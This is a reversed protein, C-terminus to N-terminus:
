HAPPQFAVTLTPMIVVGHWADAPITSYNQNYTLPLSFTVAYSGGDPTIFPSPSYTLAPGIQLLTDRRGGVVDQYERGTATMPLTLKWDTLQVRAGPTVSVAVNANKQSAVDSLTEGFTLAFDAYFCFGDKRPDPIAARCFTGSGSLDQNQHNLTIQPTFLDVSEKSFATTYVTQNQFGFAASDVTILGAPPIDKILTDPSVPVSVLHGLRDSQYGSAGLFHQYAAQTTISDFSKTPFQEYRVSQSQASFGVVDFNGKPPSGTTVPLFAQLTAGYGWSTGPSNNLNSRLVNTEDTPNFPASVKITAKAACYSIPFATTLQKRQEKTMKFDRPARSPDLSYEIAAIADEIAAVAFKREKDRDSNFFDRGSSFFDNMIKTAVDGHKTLYTYPDQSDANAANIVEANKNTLYDYQHKKNNYQFLVFVFSPDDLCAGINKPNLKDKLKQPLPGELGSLASIGGGSVSGFQTEAIGVSLPVTYSQVRSQTNPDVQAQAQFASGFSVGLGAAIAFGVDLYGVAGVQRIGM